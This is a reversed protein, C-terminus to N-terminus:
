GCFTSLKGPNKKTKKTKFLKNNELFHTNKYCGANEIEMYQRTHTLPTGCYLPWLNSSFFDLFVQPTATNYSNM